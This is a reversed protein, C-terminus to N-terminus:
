QKIIRVSTVRVNLVNGNNLLLMENGEITAAYVTDLTLNKTEHGRVEYEKGLSTIDITAVHVRDNTVTQGCNTCPSPLVQGPTEIQGQSIVHAQLTFESPDHKKAHACTGFAFALAVVAVFRKM